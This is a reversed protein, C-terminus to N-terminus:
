SHLVEDCTTAPVYSETPVGPELAWTLEDDILDRAQTGKSQVVGLHWLINKLQFTTASRFPSTGDPMEHTVIPGDDLDDVGIEDWEDTDATGVVHERVDDEDRLFLEGAFVPYMDWLERFLEDTRLAYPVDQTLRKNHVKSLSYVLRHIDYDAIALTPAYEEFAPFQEVMRERDGRHDDFLILVDGLTDVGFWDPASCVVWSGHESLVLDGDQTGILSLNEAGRRAANAGGIVYEDTLEDANDKNRGLVLAMAYGIYAKPHNYLYHSISM